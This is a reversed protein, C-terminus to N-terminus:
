PEKCLEYLLDRLHLNNNRSYSTNSAEETREGGQAYTRKDQM